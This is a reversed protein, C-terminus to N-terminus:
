AEGAVSFKGGSGGGGAAAEINRSVNNAIAGFVRAPGGEFGWMSFGSETLELTSVAAKGAGARACLLDLRFAPVDPHLQSVWAAWVTALAEAKREADAM